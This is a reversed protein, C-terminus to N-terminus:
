IVQAYTHTETNIHIVRADGEKDIYSYLNAHELPKLLYSSGTSAYRILFPRNNAVPPVNSIIIDAIPRGRGDMLDCCIIPADDAFYYPDNPAPSSKETSKSKSM